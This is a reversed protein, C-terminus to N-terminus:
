PGRPPPAELRTLGVPHSVTRVVRCYVLVAVVAGVLVLGYRLGEGADLNVLTLYASADYVGHLLAIVVLNGGTARYTAAFAFGLLFLSPFILPAAVGYTTGYYLHVGAFLVSTAVAPALWGGGRALWFGFTWARFISEEAFGVLFSLAIFFWPDGTAQELAPNARSLLQLAGPDVLLYVVTLAFVVALALISTVGYWQLGELTALGMRDRWHRLPGTGVLTLFALIPVGYVLALDGALSGYVVRTAPLGEPVFYQSLIVFVTIAVAVAYGGVSPGSPPPPPVPLADDM